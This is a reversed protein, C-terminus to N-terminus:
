WGTRRHLRNCPCPVRSLACGILAIRRGRPLPHLVTRLGQHLVRHVFQHFLSMGSSVCGVVSFVIFRGHEGRDVSRIKHVVFVVVTDESAPAADQGKEEECAGADAEAVPEDGQEEPHGSGDQDRDKEAEASEKAKGKVKGRARRGKGKGKGKGKQVDGGEGEDAEGDEDNWGRKRKPAKVRIFPEVVDFIHIDAILKGSIWDWVKLVPDGGGSILTSEQFSPIHLASVFRRCRLPSPFAPLLSLRM